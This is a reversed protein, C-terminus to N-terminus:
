PQVRRFSTPLIESEETREFLEVSGTEPLHRVLDTRHRAIVDRSEAPVGALIRGFESLAVLEQLAELLPQRQQQRQATPPATDLRDIRSITQLLQEDARSSTESLNVRSNIANAAVACSMRIMLSAFDEPSVRHRGFTEMLQRDKRWREGHRSADFMARYEQRYVDVLQEASMRDSATVQSLPEFSPVEKGPLDEVVRLFTSVEEDRLPDDLSTSPRHVVPTPSDGAGEDRGCGGLLLITLCVSTARTTPMRSPSM